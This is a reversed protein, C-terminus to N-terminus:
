ETAARRRKYPKAYQLPPLMGIFVRVCVDAHFQADADSLGDAHTQLISAIRGASEKILVWGIARVSANVSTMALLAGYAPATRLFDLNEDIFKDLAQEVMRYRISGMIQAQRRQLEVAYGRAITEAIQEKNDFFQYLTGPSCNAKEAILNTNSDGYGVEAFVQEAARLIEGQRKLGRARRKPQKVTRQDTNLGRQSSLSIAM